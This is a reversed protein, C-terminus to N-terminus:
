TRDRLWVSTIFNYIPPLFVHIHIISRLHLHVWIHPRHEQLALFLKIKLFVIWWLLIILTALLVDLNEVSHSFWFSNKMHGVLDRFRWSHIRFPNFKTGEALFAFTLVIRSANFSAFHLSKESILIKISAKSTTSTM